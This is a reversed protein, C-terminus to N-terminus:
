GCRLKVFGIAALYVILSAHSDELFIIKVNAAVVGILEAPLLCPVFGEITRVIPQMRDPLLLLFHDVHRVPVVVQEPRESKATLGLSPLYLSNLLCDVLLVPGM